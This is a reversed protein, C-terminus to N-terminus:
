EYEKLKRIFKAPAGAWVENEPVNKTVVSGAGIIAHDGIKVGKLIISQAGIFVDNGILIPATKIDPDPSKCRKTHDLSHFDTDYICVSGGIKVQKGIVIKEAAYLSCNSMGTRDGIIISADSQIYISTYTNWGIPNFRHCSNIRVNDGIIIKGKGSLRLRGNVVVNKGKEVQHLIFTMNNTLTAPFLIIKKVLDKM